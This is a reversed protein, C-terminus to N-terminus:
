SFCASTGGNTSGHFGRARFLIKIQSEADRPKIISILIEDIHGLAHYEIFM